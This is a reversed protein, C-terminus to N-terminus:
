IIKFTSSGGVVTSKILISKVIIAVYWKALERGTSSRLHHPLTSISRLELVYAIFECCYLNESCRSTYLLQIYRQKPGNGSHLIARIASM